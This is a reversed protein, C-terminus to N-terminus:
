REVAEPGGRILICLLVGEALEVRAPTSEIFNSVGRSAAFNLTGNQLPYGLGTTTVGHADGALPILSVLDDPAGDLELRQESQLVQAQQPGSVFRLRLEAFQPQAALLLSALSQDWRSGVAGLVIVQQAGQKHAATLALELDTADKRRPHRLVDTGARELQEPESPDLSDLDGILLDPERDLRRLHRLGGDAAIVKDARDLWARAVGVDGLEGSAVIVTLM